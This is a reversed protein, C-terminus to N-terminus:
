LDEKGKFYRSIKLLFEQEHPWYEHLGDDHPSHLHLGPASGFTMPDDYKPREEHRFYATVLKHPLPSLAEGEPPLDPMAFFVAQREVPLSTPPASPADHHISPLPIPNPQPPSPPTIITQQNNFAHSGNESSRQHFRHLHGPICLNIFEAAQPNDLDLHFSGRLDARTACTVGTAANYGLFTADNFKCQFLSPDGPPSHVPRIDEVMAMLMMLDSHSNPAPPPPAPPLMQLNLNNGLTMQIPPAMASLSSPGSINISLTTAEPLNKERKYRCSEMFHSNGCTKQCVKPQHNAAYSPLYAAKSAILSLFKSDIMRQLNKTKSFKNDM